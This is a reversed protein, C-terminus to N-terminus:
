EKQLESRRCSLAYNEKELQNIRGSKESVINEHLKRLDHFESELKRSEQVAEVIHQQLIQGDHELNRIRNLNRNLEDHQKDEEEKLSERQVNFRHELDAIQANRDALRERMQRLQLM